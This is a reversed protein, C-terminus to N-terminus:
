NICSIFLELYTVHFRNLKYLYERGKGLLLSIVTSYRNCFRVWQTMMFPARLVFINESLFHRFKSIPFIKKKKKKKWQFKCRGGWSYDTLMEQLAHKICIIKWILIIYSIFNVQFVLLNIDGSTSMWQPSSEFKASNLTVILKSFHFAYGGVRLSSFASSASSTGDEWLIILLHYTLYISSLQSVQPNSIAIRLSCVNIGVTSSAFLYYCKM